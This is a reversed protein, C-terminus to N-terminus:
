PLVLTEDKGVRKILNHGNYIYNVIISDARNIVTYHGSITSKSFTETVDIPKPGYLTAKRIILINTGKTLGIINLMAKSKYKADPYEKLYNQYAVITNLQMANKWVKGENNIHAYSLYIKIFIVLIVIIFIAISLKIIKSKKKKEKAIKSKNTIELYKDKAESNAEDLKLSENLYYEANAFDSKDYYENGMKYYTLACLKNRKGIDGFEGINEFYSLAENFNEKDLEKQGLFLAVECLLINIENDFWDTNNTDIIKSYLDSIINEKQQLFTYAYVLYVLALFQKYSSDELKGIIPEIFSKTKSYETKKAKSIGLYLIADLDTNDINYVRDWAIVADKEMKLEFLLTAKNKWANKNNPDIKIIKDCYELAKNNDRKNLALLSVEKLLNIDNPLIETLKYGIEAAENPKGAAKLSQFLLKQASFDNEDIALIKYLTLIAEEFSNNEILLRAFEFLLTVNLPESKIKEELVIKKASYKPNDEISSVLQAGCSKCFKKDDPYETKCKPCTKMKTEMRYYKYNVGVISVFIVLM